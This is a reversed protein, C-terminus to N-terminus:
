RLKSFDVRAKGPEGERGTVMVVYVGKADLAKGDFTAVIMGGQLPQKGGTQPTGTTYPYPLVAGGVKPGFRSLREITRAKIPDGAQPVLTVVFDPVGLYTNLPHFTLEAVIDVRSPDDGLTELALRQGYSRNGARAHSEADLVIRRFPTVVEIDDIPPVGVNFHYPAHFSARTSDSTTQGTLIADSLSAPNLTADFAAVLVNPAALFVLLLGTRGM